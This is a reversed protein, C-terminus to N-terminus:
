RVGARAYWEYMDAFSEEIPRAPALGFARRAKDDLMRAPAQLTRLSEHTFLPEGDRPRRREVIRAALRALALPVTIRPPRTGAVQAARDAFERMSLWRGGVLYNHGREGRDVAALFAQALDRADIFAFGGPVVAPLRGARLDLLLRGIRSPAHDHPGLIGSPNLIVADLGRAVRAQIEREGAWKSADYACVDPGSPRPKTEDLLGPRHIDFAHMSSSHVFRRAGEALAAEAANAAGDVNVAEVLGERSGTISIHAALHFVIEMGRFARRMSALDRVDGDVKEVDVGDLARADGYVVARVRDGHAVLARVLNAGLHGTSGTVVVRRTM